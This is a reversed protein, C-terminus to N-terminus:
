DDDRDTKPPKKPEEQVISHEPEYSFDTKETSINQVSSEKQIPTEKLTETEEDVFIEPYNLKQRLTELEQLQMEIEGLDKKLMM